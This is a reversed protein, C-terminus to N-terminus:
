MSTCVAASSSCAARRANSYASTSSIAAATASKLGAAGSPDFIEFVSWCSPM